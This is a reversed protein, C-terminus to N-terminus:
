RIGGNIVDIKHILNSKTVFVWFVTGDTFDQWFGNEDFTGTFSSLNLQRRTLNGCLTVGANGHLTLVGNVTGRICVDGTSTNKLDSEADRRSINVTLDVNGGPKALEICLPQENATVNPVNITQDKAGILVLAALTITGVTQSTNINVQTTISWGGSHFSTTDGFVIGDIFRSDKTLRYEGSRLTVSGAPKDASILASNAILSITQDNTGTLAFDPAGGGTKQLTTVGSGNQSFVFDGYIESAAPLTVTMNGPQNATFKLRDFVANAFTLATIANTFTSMQVDIFQRLNGQMVSNNGYFEWSLNFLGELRGVSLSGAREAKIMKVAENTNRIVGSTFHLSPLLNNYFIYIHSAESVDLIGYIDFRGELHYYYTLPVFAAYDPHKSKRFTVTMEANILAKGHGLGGLRLDCSAYFTCLVHQTYLIVDSCYLDLTSNTTDAVDKFIHCVGQGNNGVKLKRGNYNFTGAYETLLKFGLIVPDVDLTCNGAGGGNAASTFVATDNAGPVVGGSWAAPTNWNANSGNGIWMMESM